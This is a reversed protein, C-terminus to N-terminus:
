LGINEYPDPPIDSPARTTGDLELGAENMSDILLEERARVVVQRLLRGVGPKTNSLRIQARTLNERQNDLSAQIEEPSKM